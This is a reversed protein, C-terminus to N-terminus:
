SPVPASSGSSIVVRYFARRMRHSLLLDTIDARVQQTKIATTLNLCVRNWCDEIKSPQKEKLQFLLVWQPHLPRIATKRNQINISNNKNWTFGELQGPSVGFTAVMGYLWAAYPKKHTLLSFYEDIIHQDSPPKHLM